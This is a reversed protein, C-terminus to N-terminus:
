QYDGQLVIKGKDLLYIYDMYKMYYLAHTVLVRTTDLKFNLLCEQMISLGVHIDVASCVFFFFANIWLFLIVSCPSEKDIWYTKIYNKYRLIDDLLLIEADSYLARALAIRAKQGGSLNVGKEGIM